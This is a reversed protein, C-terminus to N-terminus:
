CHRFKIGGIDAHFNCGISYLCHTAIAVGPVKAYFLHHAIGLEALNIFTGVLYLAEHNRLANQFFLASILISVLRFILLIPTKLSCEINIKFDRCVIFKCPNKTKIRIILALKLFGSKDYNNHRMLYVQISKGFARRAFRTDRDPTGKLRTAIKYSIAVLVGLSLSVCLFFSYTFSEIQSM